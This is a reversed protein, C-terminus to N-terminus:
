ERPNHRINWPRSFSASKAKLFPYVPLIEPDDYIFPAGISNDPNMALLDFGAIIEFSIENETEIDRIQWEKIRTIVELGECVLGKTRELPEDYYSLEVEGTETDANIKKLVKIPHQYKPVKHGGQIEFYEKWDGAQAAIRAKEMIGTLEDKCRRLERWVGVSAGGVQQIQRIGWTSAWSRVRPATDSADQGDTEFDEGVGFGALNKSIYKFLYSSASGKSLDIAEFDIRYKEAGKEDGDVRLAHDELISNLKSQQDQPTFLWIHWHPCGDAHAEAVRFGYPYIDNDKFSTSARNWLESLYQQAQRPTTGDYKNSSPHMRSPCTITILQCTHGNDNGYGEFGKARTYIEAFRNIPNALSSDLLDLMNIVEEDDGYVAEKRAMIELAKEQRAHIRKHAANSCYIQKYKGVIGIRLAFAEQERDQQKFLQRKWWVPCGLRNKIGTDTTATPQDIGQSEAYRIGTEIGDQKVIKHCTKALRDAKRELANDSFNFSPAIEDQLDLFYLNADRPSENRHKRKYTEAIDSHYREPIISFTKKIHYRIQFDVQDLGKLGHFDIEAYDMLVGDNQNYAPALNNETNMTNNNM